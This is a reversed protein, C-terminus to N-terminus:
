FNGMAYNIEPADNIQSGVQNGPMDIKLGMQVCGHISLDWAIGM